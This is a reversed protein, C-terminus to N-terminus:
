AGVFKIDRILVSPLLLWLGGLLSCLNAIQIPNAFEHVGGSSRPALVIGLLVKKWRGSKPPIGFQSLFRLLPLLVVIASNCGLHDSSFAHGVPFFVASTRIGTKAAVCFPLQVSGSRCVERSGPVSQLIILETVEISGGSNTKEM